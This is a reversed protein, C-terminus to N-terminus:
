SKPEPQRAVLMYGRNILVQELCDNFTDFWRGCRTKVKPSRRCYVCRTKLMTLFRHGNTKKMEHDAEILALRFTKPDLTKM